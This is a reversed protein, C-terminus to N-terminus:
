GFGGSGCEYGARRPIRVGVGGAAVPAKTTLAAIAAMVEGVAWQWARYADDARRGGLVICLVSIAAAGM